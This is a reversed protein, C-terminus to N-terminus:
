WVGPVTARRKGSKIWDVEKFVPSNKPSASNKLLMMKGDNFQGIVLDDSGDGNVDAITPCAYGPAEVAVFDNGAKVRFPKEFQSGQSGPAPTLSKSKQKNSEVKEGSDPEVEAKTDKESEQAFLGNGLGTSCALVAALLCRWGFKHKTM